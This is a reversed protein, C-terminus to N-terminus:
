QAAEAPAFLDPRLEARPIGTVLEVGILRDAPLLTFGCEWRNFTSKTVGLKNAADVLGVRYDKRWARLPHATKNIRDPAPVHRPMLALFNSVMHGRRYWEGHVRDPQCLAHLEAEQARSGPLFGIMKCPCATDSNIKSLRAMPDTSWGIKVLGDANEIAYVYSM